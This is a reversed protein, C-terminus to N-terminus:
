AHPLNVKALYFNNIIEDYLQNYRQQCTRNQSYTTDSISNIFPLVLFDFFSIPNSLFRNFSVKSIIITILMKLQILRTIYYIM